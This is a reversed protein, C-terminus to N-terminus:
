EGFQRDFLKQQASRLHRLFTSHAVDLSEAIETASSQRPEMFYGNFYAAKLATRQKETLAPMSPSKGIGAEEPRKHESISRVSVTEFITELAEVTQRVEEKAPLTVTVTAGDTGISTSDVMRGRASLVAEPVPETVSVQLRVPDGGEIVSVESVASHGRLTETVPGAPGTEIEVFQVLDEGDLPLTERVRVAGHDRFGGSRAVDLLYYRGSVQLQAEVIHDAALARRTELSHIAFAVTDALENLLRRETDDFRGPEEHYVALVGYPVDNYLLPVAGVSRYNYSCATDRWTAAPGSELDQCFQPRSAKVAEIAPDATEAGDSITRDIEEVYRREGRVVRPVVTGNSRTGVWALAYGHEQLQRAIQRELSERTDARVLVEQVTRNLQREWRLERERQERSTVDRISLLTADDEAYPIQGGSVECHRISGDPRVIRTEQLLPQDEGARWGAIVTRFEERDEPHVITEIIDTEALAADARETLECFRDNWFRLESEQLIAIGDRSQETVTRYRQESEEIAQQLRYHNVATEITNLFQSPQDGGFEKILYDTVDVDTAREAVEESGQSTVLIFPLRPHDARIEELLELGDKGPMKYDALICDIDERARFTDFAETASGAITCTVNDAEAEIDDAILRAWETDDDVFLVQIPDDTTGREAGPRNRDSM